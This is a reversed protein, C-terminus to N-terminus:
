VNRHEDIYTCSSLKTMLSKDLNRDPLYEIDEVCASSIKFTACGILKQLASNRRKAYEADVLMGFREEFVLERMAHDGTQGIFAAAM